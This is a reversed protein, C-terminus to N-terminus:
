DPNFSDDVPSPRPRACHIGANPHPSRYWGSAGALTGDASAESARLTPINLTSESREVPSKQADALIQQRVGPPPSWSARCRLM